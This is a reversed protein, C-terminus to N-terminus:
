WIRQTTWAMLTTVPVASWGITAAAARWRITWATASSPITNTRLEDDVSAGAETFADLANDQLYVDDGAGGEMKDAGAGGDLTDNGDAGLISDDGALGKLGNNESNGQLLNALANGNGVLDGVGTLILRELNAGLTFNIESKVTDIGGTAGAMTEVVVDGKSEVEYLDDGAGGIMKDGGLGGILANNGANGTLTNALENGTADLNDTGVLTLHEVNAGLNFSLSSKVLDTGGFKDETIQDGSNDVVYVDNHNGGFLSDAGAGGDLTDNGFDGRLVNAVQNGILLDNGIYGEANEIVVGNAITFGGRIGSMRSVYGGANPGVLPAENLNITCSSGSHSAEIWDSGGADWICSWFTGSNNSGPLTYFNGGANYTMNAGYIAQLAAIDLAMPTGQWGYDYSNSPATRWGDNYSMTTWIGQNLGFDGTDRSNDVGPFVQPNDVFSGGGDHPHALGLAHGLEHIITVFGYGGQQLGSQTWSADNANFYGYATEYTGDPVDHSGLSGGAYASTVLWWAIDTDAFSGVEQFDVNCVNEYLQVANRFADQEYGFWEYANASEGVIQGEGFFYTIPSGNWKAGWILSDLYPNGTPAESFTGDQTAM